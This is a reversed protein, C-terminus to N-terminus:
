NSVHNRETFRKYLLGDNYRVFDPQTFKHIELSISASPLNPLEFVISFLFYGWYSIM